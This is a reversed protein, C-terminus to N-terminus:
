FKESMSNISRYIDLILQSRKTKHPTVLIQYIERKLSRKLRRMIERKTKGETTRRTVYNITPEHFRM